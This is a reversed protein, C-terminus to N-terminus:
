MACRGAPAKPHLAPGPDGRGESEGATAPADFEDVTRRVFQMEDCLDACHAGGELCAQVVPRGHPAYPGVLNLVVRARGPWRWCRNRALSIQRSSRLLM